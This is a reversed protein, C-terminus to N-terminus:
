IGTYRPRKYSYSYFSAARYNPGTEAISTVLSRRRKISRYELQLLQEDLARITPLTVSRWETDDALNRPDDQAVWEPMRPAVLRDLLVLQSYATNILGLFDLPLNHTRWAEEAGYVNDRTRVHPLHYVNSTDSRWVQLTCNLSASAIALREGMEALHDELIQNERKLKDLQYLVFLYGAAWDADSELARRHVSAIAPPEPRIWLHGRLAHAAEHFFILLLADATSSSTNRESLYDNLLTGVPNTRPHWRESATFGTLRGQLEMELLVPGSKQLHLLRNTIGTLVPVCGLRVYITAARGQVSAVPCCQAFVGPSDDLKLELTLDSKGFEENVWQLADKLATVSCEAAHIVFDLSDISDDPKKYRLYGEADAAYEPSMPNIPGLGFGDSLIRSTSIDPKNQDM